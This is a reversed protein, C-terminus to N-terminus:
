SQKGEPWLGPGPTLVHDPDFRHKAAVLRQWENGFHLRWDAPTLPVAGIPYLTGGYGRCREFLSRNAVVM